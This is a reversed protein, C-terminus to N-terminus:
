RSGRLSRPPRRIVLGLVAAGIMVPIVASPEPVSTVSDPGIAFGFSENMVGNGLDRDGRFVFSFLGFQDYSLGHPLTDDTLFTSSSKGQFVFEMDAITALGALPTDRQIHQLSFVRNQPTIVVNYKEGGSYSKTHDSIYTLGGAQLTVGYVGLPSPHIYDGEDPSLNSDVLADDYAFSGVVPDGNKVLDGLDHFNDSVFFVHGTFHVTIPGASAVSCAVVAGSVLMGVKRFNM